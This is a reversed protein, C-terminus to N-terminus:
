PEVRCSAKAIQPPRPRRPQNLASVVSGRPMWWISDGACAATASSYRASRAAHTASTAAVPAVAFSVFACYAHAPEAELDGGRPRHADHQREELRQAAARVEC